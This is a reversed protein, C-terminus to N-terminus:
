RLLGATLYKNGDFAGVLVAAIQEPELGSRLDGAAQRASRHRRDARGVRGTNQRSPRWRRAPGLERTLRTISWAGPEREHLDLMAPVLARLQDLATPEALDRQGVRSLWRGKQERLVAPALDAKSPFYLYFAGKALGSAAILHGSRACAV